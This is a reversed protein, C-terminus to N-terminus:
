PLSLDPEDGDETLGLSGPQPDSSTQTDANELAKCRADLAMLKQTVDAAFMKTAQGIAETQKAVELINAQLQRSLQQLIRADEPSM